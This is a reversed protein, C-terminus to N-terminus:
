RGKANPQSDSPVPAGDKLVIQGLDKTEGPKLEFPPSIVDNFLVSDVEISLRVVGPTIDRLAFRGEADTSADRDLRLDGGFDLHCVVTKKAIPVGNQDVIRGKFDASPVMVVRVSGLIEGAHPEVKKFTEAMVEHILLRVEQQALVEDPLLAHDLHDIAEYPFDHSCGMDATAQPPSQRERLLTHAENQAVAKLWTFLRGRSPDFSKISKVCRVFSMQVVDEATERACGFQLQVFTRLATSHESCFTEWAREDMRVLRRVFAREEARDM